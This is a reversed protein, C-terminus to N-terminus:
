RDAPKRCPYTRALAIIASRRGSNAHEQPNDRLWRLIIALAENRSIAAEPPCVAIAEGIRFDSVGFGDLLGSVYGMCWMADLTEEASLTQEQLSKEYAGCRALLDAGSAGAALAAPPASLLLLFILLRTM